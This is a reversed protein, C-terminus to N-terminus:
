ICEEPQVEASRASNPRRKLCVAYKEELKKVHQKLSHISKEVCNLEDNFFKLSEVVEDSVEDSYFLQHEDTGPPQTRVPFPTCFTSVVAVGFLFAGIAYFLYDVNNDTM